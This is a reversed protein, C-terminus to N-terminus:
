ATEGLAELWRVDQEFQAMAREYAGRTKTCVLTLPNGKRETVHTMDIKHIRIQEHLHQRRAKAVKFRHIEAEPDQAFAVLEQCDACTCKLEVDQRWDSPAAPPSATAARLEAVVHERLRRVAPDAELAPDHARIALAAPVLIDRLGYRDPRALAQDVAPAFRDLRGIAQLGIALPALVSRRSLAPAHRWDARSREDLAALLHVFAEAAADCVSRRPETLPGGATCLAEFLVALGPVNPFRDASAQAALMAVLPERCPTWGLRDCLAALAAPTAPGLSGGHADDAADDLDHDAEDDPEEDLDDPGAEDADSSWADAWDDEWAPLPYRDAVDAPIEIPMRALVDRIFRAALGEDALVALSRLMQAAIADANRFSGKRQRWDDLIARAFRHAEDDAAPDASALVMALLAPVAVDPGERAMLRVTNARPWLVVVAQRYWREIPFGENGTPGSSSQEYPLELAPDRVLEEPDLEM